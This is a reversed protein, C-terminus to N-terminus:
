LMQGDIEALCVKRNATRAYLPLERQWLDCNCKYFKNNNARPRSPPAIVMQNQRQLATKDNHILKILKASRFPLALLGNHAPRQCTALTQM